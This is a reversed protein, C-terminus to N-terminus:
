AHLLLCVANKNMYISLMDTAKISLRQENRDGQVILRLLPAGRLTFAACPDFMISANYQSPLNNTAPPHNLAMSKIRAIGATEALPKLRPGSIIGYDVIIGTGRGAPAQAHVSALHRDTLPEYVVLGSGGYGRSHLMEAGDVIGEELSGNCDISAMGTNIQSIGGGGATHDCQPLQGLAVSRIAEAEYNAAAFALEGLLWALEGPDISSPHETNLSIISGDLETVTHLRRATSTHETACFFQRVPTVLNGEPSTFAGTRFPYTTGSLSVHPNTAANEHRNVAAWGLNAINLLASGSEKSSAVARITQIAGQFDNPIHSPPKRIMGYESTM